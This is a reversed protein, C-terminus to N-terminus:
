NACVQIYCKWRSAARIRKTTKVVVTECTGEIVSRNEWDTIFCGLRKLEKEPKRWTTVMVSVAVHLGSNSYLKPSQYTKGSRMLSDSVEDWKLISERKESDCQQFEETRIKFRLKKAM